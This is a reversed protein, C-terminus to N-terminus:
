TDNGKNQETNNNSEQVNHKRTHTIGFLCTVKTQTFVFVCGCVGWVCVCGGVCVFMTWMGEWKKQLNIFKRKIKNVKM